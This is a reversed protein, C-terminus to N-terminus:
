PFHIVTEAVNIKKAIIKKEDRQDRECDEAVEEQENALSPLLLKQVV